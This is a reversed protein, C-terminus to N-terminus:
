QEIEVGGSFMLFGKTKQRKRPTDFHFMSKFRTLITFVIDLNLLEPLLFREFTNKKGSWCALKQRNVPLNPM